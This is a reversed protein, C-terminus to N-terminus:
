QNRDTLHTYSVAKRIDALEIQHELGELANGLVRLVLQIQTRLGCLADEYVELIDLAGGTLLNREANTLYALGEAVLNSRAVEGETGALKLLHFQLEEALRAGVKLPELVPLIVAVVEQQIQTDLIFVEPQPIMLLFFKGVIGVGGGINLKHEGKAPALQPGKIVKAVKSLLHDIDKKM